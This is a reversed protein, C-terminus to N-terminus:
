SRRGKGHAREEGGSGSGGGQRGSGVMRGACRMGDQARPVAVAGALGGAAERNAWRGQWAAVRRQARLMGFSFVARRM